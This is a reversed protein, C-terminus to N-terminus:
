GETEEDATWWLGDEEVMMPLSVEEIGKLSKAFKLLEEQQWHLNSVRGSQLFIRLMSGNHSEPPVDMDFDADLRANMNKVFDKLPELAQQAQEATKFFLTGNTECYQGM